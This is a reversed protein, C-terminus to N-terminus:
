RKETIPQDSAFINLFTEIQKELEAVTGDNMITYDAMEMVIAKQMGNPDPDNKELAEQELFQEYTVQDSASRRAQVREYRLEPNADVALLIGGQSKLYKAEAAARVSEIVANTIGAAAAQEYAQKIVYENGHEARMQNATLRMQNRTVPLAQREIEAVIFERASYHTFGKTKLYEVATGKGAGDTGTIGIIM